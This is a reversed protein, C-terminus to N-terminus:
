VQHRDCTQVCARYRRSSSRQQERAIAAIEDLIYSQDESLDHGQLKLGIHLDSVHLFKM